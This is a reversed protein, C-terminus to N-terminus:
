NMLYLLLTDERLLEAYFANLKETESLPAKLLLVHKPTALRKTWVSEGVLKGQLDFAQVQKIPISREKETLTKRENKVTTAYPVQITYEQERLQGNVTM